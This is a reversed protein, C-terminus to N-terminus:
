RCDRFRQLTAGVVSGVYQLWSSFFSINFISGLFQSLQRGGAMNLTFGTNSASSSGGGYILYIALSTTFTASLMEIRISM